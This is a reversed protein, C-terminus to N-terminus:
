GIEESSGGGTNGGGNNNGGNGSDSSGNKRQLYAVEKVGVKEIGEMEDRLRENFREETEFKARVVIDDPKVFNSINDLTLETVTPDISKADSLTVTNKLKLNAYISGLMQGSRDYLPVKYGQAAFHVAVDGFLNIVSEAVDTPILGNMMHMHEAIQRASATGVLKEEVSVSEVNGFAEVGRNLKNVYKIKM